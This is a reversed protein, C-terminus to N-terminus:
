SIESPTATPQEQSIRQQEPVPPRQLYTNAEVIEYVMVALIVAMVIPVIWAFPLVYPKWHFLTFDGDAFSGYIVPFSLPGYFLQVLFYIGVIAYLADISTLVRALGLSESGIAARIGTLAARSFLIIAVFQLFELDPTPYTPVLSVLAFAVILLAVGGVGNLVALGGLRTPSTLKEFKQVRRTVKRQTRAIRPEKPEKREFFNRFNDIMDHIIAELSTGSPYSFYLLVFYTIGIGMLIWIQVGVMAGIYDLVAISGTLTFTTLLAIAVLDAFVILPIIRWFLTRNETTLSAMFGLSAKRTIGKESETQFEHALLDPSGMKVVADWASASTLEGTPQSAQELLHSRLEPIIDEAVSPSLRRRVQKLYDEIIQKASTEERAAPLKAEKEESTHRDNFKSM